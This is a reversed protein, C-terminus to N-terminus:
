QPVECTGQTLTVLQPDYSPTSTGDPGQPLHFVLLRAAPTWARPVRQVLWLPSIGNGSGVCGQSSSPCPGEPLLTARSGRLLRAPLAPLGPGVAGAPGKRM